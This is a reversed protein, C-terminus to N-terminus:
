EPAVLRFLRLQASQHDRPDPQRQKSQDTLPRSDTRDHFPYPSRGVRQIATAQDDQHERAEISEEVPLPPPAPRKRQDDYAHVGDRNVDHTPRHTEKKVIRKFTM